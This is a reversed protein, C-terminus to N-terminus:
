FRLAAQRRVLDIARRRATTTLWAGPRAPVGDSEWATLAAVFAEQTCEEATALDGHLLRAVTALVRGWEERHAQEVADVVESSTM